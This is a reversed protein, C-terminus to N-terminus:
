TSATNLKIETVTVNLIDATSFFLEEDTGTKVRFGSAKGTYSDNIIYDVTGLTKGNKDIVKAGAQISVDAPKDFDTKLKIREASAEEVDELSYIVEDLVNETKVAFKKIEGTWTDRIIRDVTGINRGSSDIVVTGNELEM